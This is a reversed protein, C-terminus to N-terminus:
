GSGAKLCSPCLHRTGVPLDCLTCLFRGCRDCPREARKTPHFFCTADGEMARAGTQTPMPPALLTTPFVAIRLLQHCRVCECPTEGGEVWPGPLMFYCAPCRVAPPATAVNM